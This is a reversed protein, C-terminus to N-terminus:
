IRVSLQMALAWAHLAEVLPKLIKVPDGTLAQDQQGFGAAKAQAIVELLVQEYAARAMGIDTAYALLKPHSEWMMEPILMRRVAIAPVPGFPAPMLAAQALAQLASTNSLIYDVDSSLEPGVIPLAGPPVAEPASPSFAIPTGPRELYAVIKSAIALQQDPANSLARIELSFRSAIDALDFRLAIEASIRGGNGEFFRAADTDGLLREEIDYGDEQTPLGGYGAFINEGSSEWMMGLLYASAEFWIQKVTQAAVAADTTKPLPMAVRLQWDGDTFHRQMEGLFQTNNDGLYPTPESQLEFVDQLEHMPAVPFWAPATSLRTVPMFTKYVFFPDDTRTLHRWALAAAPRDKALLDRWEPEARDFPRYFDIIANADNSEMEWGFTIPRANDWHAFRLRDIAQDDTWCHASAIHAERESTFILRYFPGLRTGVREYGSVMPMAVDPRYLSLDHLPCTARSTMPWVEIFAPSPQDTISANTVQVWTLPHLRILGEVRELSAQPLLLDYFKAKTEQRIASPVFTGRREDFVYERYVHEGEAVILSALNSANQADNSSAIPKEVRQECSPALALLLGVCLNGATHRRFMRKTLVPHPGHWGGVLCLGFGRVWVLQSPSFM